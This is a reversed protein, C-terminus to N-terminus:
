SLDALIKLNIFKEGIGFLNEACDSFAQAQKDSLNEIVFSVESVQPYDTIPHGIINKWGIPTFIDLNVWSQFDYANRRIDVRLAVSKGVGTTYNRVEKYYWSQQKNYLVVDIQEYDM